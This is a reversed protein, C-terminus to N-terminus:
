PREPQIALTAASIVAATLSAILVVATLVIEAVHSARILRELNCRFGFILDLCSNASIFPGIVAGIRCTQWVLGVLVQPDEM